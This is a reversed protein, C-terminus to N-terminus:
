STAYCSMSRSVITACANTYYFMPQLCNPLPTSTTEAQSLAYVHPETPAPKLTRAGLASGELARIIGNVRKCVDSGESNASTQTVLSYCLTQRSPPKVDRGTFLNHVGLAPSCRGTFKLPNAPASDRRYTDGNQTIENKLPSNYM